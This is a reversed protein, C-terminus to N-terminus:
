GQKIEVNVPQRTAALLFQDARPSYPVIFRCNIFRVNHLSVPGGRYSITIEEFTVNDLIFGDIDYNGSRRFYSDSIFTFAGMRRLEGVQAFSRLESPRPTNVSRYEALQLLAPHVDINYIPVDRLEKLKQATADFFSPPAPTRTQTLKQLTTAVQQLHRDAYQIEGTEIAQQASDLSTEVSYRKIKGFRRVGSIIAEFILASLATQLAYRRSPVASVIEYRGSVKKSHARRYTLARTIEVMGVIAICLATAIGTPEGLAHLVLVTPVGILLGILTTRRRAAHDETFYYDLNNM